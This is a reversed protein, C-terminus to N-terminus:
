LCQGMQILHDHDNMGIVLPTGFRRRTVQRHTQHMAPM